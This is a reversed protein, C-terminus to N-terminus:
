DKMYIKVKIEIWHRKDEISIIRAFLLKGAHMLRAFVINNKKPIYGIKNNDITKVIIAYDDYENDVELFLNLKDEIKLNDTIEKINDIYSTGAIHTDYLYIEKGFPDINSKDLLKHHAVKTIDIDNKNIENM